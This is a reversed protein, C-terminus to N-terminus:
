SAIRRAILPALVLLGLLVGIAFGILVSAGAVRYFQARTPPLPKPPEIAPRAFHTRDPCTAHLVGHEPCIGVHVVDRLEDTIVYQRPVGEDDACLWCPVTTGTCQSCHKQPPPVTQPRPPTVAFSRRPRPPRQAPDHTDVM